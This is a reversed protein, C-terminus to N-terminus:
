ALTDEQESIVCGESNKLKFMQLLWGGIDSERVEQLRGM